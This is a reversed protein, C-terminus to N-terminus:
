IFGESQEFSNAKLRKSGRIYAGLATLKVSHLTEAETMNISKQALNRLEITLKRIEQLRDLFRYDKRAKPQIAKQLRGVSSKTL